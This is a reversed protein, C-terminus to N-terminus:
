SFIFYIALFFLNNIYIDFLFPRLLFGQRVRLLIDNWKSFGTNLKTRRWGNTLYSKILKLSEKSFRFNHLKAILLYWNITEFVKSLYM